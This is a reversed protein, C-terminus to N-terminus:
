QMKKMYREGNGAIVEDMPVDWADVPIQPLLQFDFCVGIKYVPRIASLSLFRDYYGKGRGMRHGAYDFAVGPLIMLDISLFDEYFSGVPELVGFRGAKVSNWGEFERLKLDDGEVVPLLLRKVGHWRNFLDELQPEDPLASYLLVVHARQFLTHTELQAAIWASQKEKLENGCARKLKAMSDRLERKNM